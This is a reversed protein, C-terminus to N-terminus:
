HHFAALFVQFWFFMELRATLQRTELLTSQLASFIQVWLSIRPKALVTLALRASVAIAALAFRFPLWWQGFQVRGFPSVKILLV